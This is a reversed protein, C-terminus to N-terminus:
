RASMGARVQMAQQYVRVLASLSDRAWRAGYFWLVIRTGHLDDSFIQCVGPYGTKCFGHFAPSQGDSVLADLRHESVREDIENSSAQTFCAATDPLQALVPVVEAGSAKLVELARLFVSSHEVRERVGNRIYEDAFGIRWDVLAAAPKAANNEMVPPVQVMVPVAPDLGSLAILSLSPDRVTKMMPGPIDFRPGQAVPAAAPQFEIGSRSATGNDTTGAPAIPACPATNLINPLLPLGGSCSAGPASVKRSKDEM